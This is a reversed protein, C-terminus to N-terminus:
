EVIEAFFGDFEFEPRSMEETWQARETEAALQAFRRAEGPSTALVIFPHNCSRRFWVRYERKVEEPHHNIQCNYKTYFHFRDKTLMWENYMEVHLPFSKALQRRHSSDAKAILRYLETTFHNHHPGVEFTLYLDLAAREEDTM